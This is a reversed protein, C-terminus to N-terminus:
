YPVFYKLGDGGEEIKKSVTPRFNPLCAACYISGVVLENDPLSEVAYTYRLTNVLFLACFEM